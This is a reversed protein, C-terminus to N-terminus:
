PTPAGQNIIALISDIFKQTAEAVCLKITESRLPEPLPPVLADTQSTCTQEFLATMELSIGIEHRITQTSDKITVESNIQAPVNFSNACGSILLLAITFTLIKSLKSM